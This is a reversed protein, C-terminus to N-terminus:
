NDACFGGKKKIYNTPSCGFWKKFRKSFYLPDSYGLNYAVEKITKNEDILMAAAKQMKLNNIYNLITIDTVDKFIHSLYDPSVNCYNSIDKIKISNYLNKNVYSISSEVIQNKVGKRKDYEEVEINLERIILWVIRSIHSTVVEQACKKEESLENIIAFMASTMESKEMNRLIQKDLNLDMPFINANSSKEDIYKFRLYVFEIEKSIAEEKHKQGPRVFYFDGCSVEFKVDNCWVRLDGSVIYVCEYSSHIHKDYRWLDFSKIIGAESFRPILYNGAILKSFFYVENNDVTKKM